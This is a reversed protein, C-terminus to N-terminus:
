RKRLKTFILLGLLLAVIMIVINFIMKYNMKAPEEKVQDLKIEKINLKDISGKLIEDKYSAIDYVPALKNNDVGFEITYNEGGKDEFVIEDAYYKVTIGKINIPKDDNNNIVLTVVDDENKKSQMQIKTDTYTTDGFSLNYIEKTRGIGKVLLSRKFMSDTDITITDIQLNKVNYIYLYTEKGIEETSFQPAITESFYSKEVTNKNYKLEVTDFAIKEMNNGLKFRYHTYKQPSNFLIELKSKGDVNYLTDDQVKEWHTNDYSGLLEINKAFNTNSTTVEISTATADTALDNKIKYDFYFANDKVYSNILQMPHNLSENQQKQFGSNIFYPVTEGKDDKVLLDSLNENANLCIEPPLRVAKYQNTGSNEIIASHAFVTTSFMLTIFFAFSIIRKLM